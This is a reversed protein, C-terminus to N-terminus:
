RACGVAVDYQGCATCEWGWSRDEVAFAECFFCLNPWFEHVAIACRVTEVLQGGDYTGRDVEAQWIYSDIGDVDGRGQYDWHQRATM